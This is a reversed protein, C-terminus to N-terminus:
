WYSGDDRYTWHTTPFYFLVWETNARVNSRYMVLLSAWLWIYGLLNFLTCMKIEQYWVAPKYCVSIFFYWGLIEHKYWLKTHGSTNMDLYPIFSRAHKIRSIVQCTDIRFHNLIVNEYKSLNHCKWILIQCWRSM